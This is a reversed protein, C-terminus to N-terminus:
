KRRDMIEPDEGYAAPVDCAKEGIRVLGFSIAEGDSARFMYQSPMTAQVQGGVVNKGRVATASMYGM